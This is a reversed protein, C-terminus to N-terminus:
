RVARVDIKALVSEIAGLLEGRTDEFTMSNRYCIAEVEEVMAGLVTSVAACTEWTWTSRTCAYRKRFVLETGSADREFVAIQRDTYTAVVLGCGMWNGRGM